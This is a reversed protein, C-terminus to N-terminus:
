KGRYFEDDDNYDWSFQRDENNDILFTVGLKLTEASFRFKLKNMDVQYCLQDNLTYPKFSNCIPVYFNEDKVGMIKMDKGFQCFPIFSSPSFINKDNLIHVPHNSIIHLPEFSEM